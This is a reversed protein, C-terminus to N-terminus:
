SPRGRRQRLPHRRGGRRHPQRRRRQGKLANDADNGMISDDGSGGIANEILSQPNGEYEDANAVEGPPHHVGPHATDLDALQATSFTSWYGPRLDIQLDTTYNSLDYTDVGGGDGPPRM